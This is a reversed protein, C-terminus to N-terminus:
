THKLGDRSARVAIYLLYWISISLSYLRCCWLKINLYLLERCVVLRREGVDDCRYEEM